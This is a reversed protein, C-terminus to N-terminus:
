ERKTIDPFKKKKGENILFKSIEDISCKELITCVDINVNNSVNNLKNTKALKQKIEKVKKIKKNKNTRFNKNKLENKKVKKKRKIEIKKREKAKGSLIKVDNNTKEKSKITIEKYGDDNKKLNLEILDLDGRKKSDIVKVELSLNEEFYIEAEAKNVCIHDGCIM